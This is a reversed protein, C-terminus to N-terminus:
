IGAAAGGTEEEREGSPLFHAILRLAHLAATTYRGPAQGPCPTWLEHACAKQRTARSKDYALAILLQARRPDALIDLGAKPDGEPPPAPAWRATPQADIYGRVVAAAGRPLALM